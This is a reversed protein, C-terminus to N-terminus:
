PKFEKVLDGLYEIPLDFKYGGVVGLEKASKDVLGHLKGVALDELHNTALNMLGESIDVKDLNNYLAKLKLELTQPQGPVWKLNGPLTQWFADVWDSVETIERFIKQAALFAAFSTWQKKTERTYKDPPERKHPNKDYHVRSTTGIIIRPEDRPRPKPKPYRRETVDPVNRRHPRLRFPVDPRNRPQPGPVLPNPVIEPAYPEPFLPIYPSYPPPIWYPGAVDKNWREEYVYKGGIGTNNDIWGGVFAPFGVPHQRPVDTKVGCLSVTTAWYRPSQMTCDEVKTYGSLNFAQYPKLWEWIDWALLLWGLWPVFRGAGRALVIARGRPTLGAAWGPPIKVGPPRPLTKPLPKPKPRPTPKRPEPKPLPQRPTPKRRPRKDPTLPRRPRNPDTRGPKRRPEPRRPKRRPDDYDPKRRPVAM